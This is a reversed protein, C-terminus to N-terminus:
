KIPSMPDVTPTSNSAPGNTIPPITQVSGDSKVEVNLDYNPKPTAKAQAQAPTLQMLKQAGKEEAAAFLGRRIWDLRRATSLEDKLKAVQARLM